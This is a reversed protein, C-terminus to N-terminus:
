EIVEVPTNWPVYRRIERIGSDTSVLRSIRVTEGWTPRSADVFADEWIARGGRVRFRGNAGLITGDGAIDGVTYQKNM